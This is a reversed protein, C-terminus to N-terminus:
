ESLRFLRDGDHPRGQARMKVQLSDPRGWARVRIFSRLNRASAFNGAAGLDVCGIGRTVVRSLSDNRRSGFATTQSAAEASAPQRSPSSLDCRFSWLCPSSRLRQGVEPCSRRQRSTRALRASAQNAASPVRKTACSVSTERQTEDSAARDNGHPLNRTLRNASEHDFNEGCSIVSIRLGHELLATDSGCSM